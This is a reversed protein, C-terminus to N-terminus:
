ILTTWSIMRLLTGTVYAADAVLLVACIKGLAVAWPKERIPIEQTKVDILLMGLFWGTAFGAAHAGYDVTDRNTWDSVLSSAVCFVFAILGLSPLVQRRRLWLCVTFATLGSTAGSFGVSLDFPDSLISFLGGVLASVLSVFPVSWKASLSELLRCLIMWGALNGVLHPWGSHLMPGTAIRWWEGENRVLPKSFGLARASPPFMDTSNLDSLSQLCFILVLASGFAWLWPASQNLTWSGFRARAARMPFFLNPLRFTELYSYRSAATVYCFFVFGLFDNVIEKGAGEGLDNSLFWLQLLVFLLNFWFWRREYKRGRLLAANRLFDIEFVSKLLPSEPTWVMRDNMIAWREVLERLRGSTCVKARGFRRYGYTGSPAKIPFADDRMWPLSVHLEIPPQAEALGAIRSRELANDM